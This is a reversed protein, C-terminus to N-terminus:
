RKRLPQTSPSQRRSRHRKRRRRLVRLRSPLQKRRRRLARLRNQLPKEFLHYSAFSLVILVAFFAAMVWGHMFFQPTLAFHTAVLWSIRAKPYRQRLGRLVPLAHIIDGPSSPKIILINKFDTQALQNM